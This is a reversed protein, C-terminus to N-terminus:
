EGRALTTVSAIAKRVPPLLLVVITLVAEAFLYAGNYAMSYTLASDFGSGEAYSGFFVVGSLVSFVYRGIVGTLYGPILMKANDKAFLGALGLAGFAFIYNSQPSGTIKCVPRKDPM